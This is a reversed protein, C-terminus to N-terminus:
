VSCAAEWSILGPTLYGAAGAMGMSAVGWGCGGGGLVVGGGEGGFCVVSRGGRGRGGSAANKVPTHFEAGGNTDWKRLDEDSFTFDLLAATNWVPVQVSWWTGRPLARARVSAEPLRQMPLSRKDQLPPPLPLPDPNPNPNPSPNPNPNPNPSPPSFPPPLEHTGARRGSQAHTCLLLSAPHRLCCGLVSTQAHSSRSTFGCLDTHPTSWAQTHHWARVGGGGRGVCVRVMVWGGVQMWWGDYGVHLTVGRCGALSGADSNYCLTALTGAPLCWPPPSPSPLPTSSTIPACCASCSFRDRETSPGQQV